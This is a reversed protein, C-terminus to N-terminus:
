LELLKNIKLKIDTYNTYYYIEYQKITDPLARLVTIVDNNLNNNNLSEVWKIIYEM